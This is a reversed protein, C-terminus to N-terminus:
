LTQQWTPYYPVDVKAMKSFCLLNESGCLSKMLWSILFDTDIVVSKLCYNFIFESGQGCFLSM